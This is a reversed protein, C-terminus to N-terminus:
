DGAKQKLFHLWKAPDVGLWIFGRLERRLIDGCMCLDHCVVWGPIALFRDNNGAPVYIQFHM